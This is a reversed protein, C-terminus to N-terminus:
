IWSFRIRLKNMSNPIVGDYQLRGVVIGPHIGSQLAFNEILQYSSFNNVAKISDILKQYSEQSILQDRAFQDKEKESASDIKSNVLDVNFDKKKDLLIHGLEHFLSFWFIDAWKWRISIQILAKNPSIWRTAGNIPASKLSRTVVFAIGCKKFEEELKRMLENPNTILTMERLRPLLKLVQNKDFSETAIQEGDISGKRLWSVVAPLSYQYKESIRFASKLKSEEIINGFNTVGFYKLLHEVQRLSNSADEIWGYRVMERYPYIKSKSVLGHYQKESELRLRIEQYQSELNNWFSAPIGFVHELQIATEPTISAKGKTIENITKIPRGLRKALELQTMGRSKLFELVTEGPVIPQTTEYKITDNKNM